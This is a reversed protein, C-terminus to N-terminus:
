VSGGNRAFAAEPSTWVSALGGESLRNALLTVLVSPQDPQTLSPLSLVQVTPPDHKSIHTVDTDFLRSILIPTSAWSMPTTVIGFSGVVQCHGGSSMSAAQGGGVFSEGVRCNWNTMNASWVHLCAPGPAAKVAYTGTTAYGVNGISVRDAYKTKLARVHHDLTEVTQRWHGDSNWQGKAIGVGLQHGCAGYRETLNPSSLNAVADELGARGAIVACVTRDQDLMAHLHTFRASIHLELVNVQLTLTEPTAM